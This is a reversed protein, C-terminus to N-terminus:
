CTKKHYKQHLSELFGDPIRAKYVHSLGFPDANYIVHSNDATFYAHVHGCAPGGGGSGCDRVLTACRGSEFAGVVIATPGSSGEPPSEAVFYRGCRSTSAHNFFHEPAPFVKFEEGPAAYIMNGERHRQDHVPTTDAPSINGSRPPRHVPTAVWGTTGVWTAHGTSPATYPEGLELSRENGGDLDILFHTAGSRKGSTPNRQVLVENERAHHIQVHSLRDATCYIVDCAGSHMDVRVLENESDRNRRVVALYRSNPCASWLHVAPGLPWHTIMIEKELTALDVRILEGNRRLYYLQGSWSSTAIWSNAIDSDISAIRLRDIDAVCLETPPHRPDAHHARLYAIRRGDPTTYPQEFYININHMASATLRCIPAGSHPDPPLDCAEAKWQIAMISRVGMSYVNINM